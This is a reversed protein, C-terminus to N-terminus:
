RVLMFVTITTTGCMDARRVRLIRAGGELLGAVGAQDARRREFPIHERFELDPKSRAFARHDLCELYLDVVQEAGTPCREAPAREPKHPEAPRAGADLHASPRCGPRDLTGRLATM